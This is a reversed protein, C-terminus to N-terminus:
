RLIPIFSYASDGDDDDGVCFCCCYHYCIVQVSCKDYLLFWALCQVHMMENLGSLYPFLFHSEFGPRKSEVVQTSLWLVLWVLSEKKEIQYYHQISCKCMPKWMDDKCCGLSALIIMVTKCILNRLSYDECILGQTLPSVSDKKRQLGTKEMCGRSVRIM